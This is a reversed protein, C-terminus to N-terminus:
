KKLTIPFSVTGVFRWDRTDVPGLFDIEAAGGLRIRDNIQYYGFFGTAAEFIDSTQGLVDPADVHVYNPGLIAGLGTNNGQVLYWLFRYQLDYKTFDQDITTDANAKNYQVLVTSYLNPHSFLLSSKFIAGAVFTTSTNYDALDPKDATTVGLGLFGRVKVSDVTQANTSASCFVFLLCSALLLKVLKM